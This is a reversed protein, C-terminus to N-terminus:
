RMRSALNPVIITNYIIIVRSCRYMRRQIASIRQPLPPPRTHLSFFLRLYIHIYGVIIIIITVLEYDKPNTPLWIIFPFTRNKSTRNRIGTYTNYLIRIVVVNRRVIPPSGAGPYYPNPLAWVRVRSFRVCKRKTRFWLIRTVM